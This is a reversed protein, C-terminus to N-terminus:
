QKKTNREKKRKSEKSNLFGYFMFPQPSIGSSTLAPILATVGPISIVNYEKQM